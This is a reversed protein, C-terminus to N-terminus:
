LYGITQHVFKKRIEPVTGGRYGPVLLIEKSVSSVISTSNAPFSFKFAAYLDSRQGDIFNLEALSSVFDRLAALRKGKQTKSKTTDTEIMLIDIDESFRDILAYAKSLCTGGKFVFENAFESKALNKLLYTVWYDKEIIFPSLNVQKATENILLKFDEHEHLYKM